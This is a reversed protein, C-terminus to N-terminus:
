RVGERTYTARQDGDLEMLGPTLKDVDGASHLPRDRTIPIASVDSYIEEVWNIGSKKEILSGTGTLSCAWISDTSRIELPVDFNALMANISGAQELNNFAIVNNVDVINDSTAFYIISGGTEEISPLFKIARRRNNRPVLQIWAAVRTGDAFPNFNFSGFSLNTPTRNEMLKQTTMYNLFQAQANRDKAAANKHLAEVLEKDATM